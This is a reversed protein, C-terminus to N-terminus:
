SVCLYARSLKPIYSQLCLLSVRRIQMEGGWGQKVGREPPIRWFKQILTIGCFSLSQAIRHHFNCSGLQLRKQSIWCHSLRVCLRVSVSPPVTSLMYRALCMNRRASFIWCFEAKIANVLVNIWMNIGITIFIPSPFHPLSWFLRHMIYRIYRGTKM